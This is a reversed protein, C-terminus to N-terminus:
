FHGRVMRVLVISFRVKRPLDVVDLSPGHPGACNFLKPEILVEVAETSSVELLGFGLFRCLKHVRPDRVARM